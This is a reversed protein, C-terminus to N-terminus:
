ITLDEFTQSILLHLTTETEALHEQQLQLMRDYLDYFSNQVAQLNEETPSSTYANLLSSLERSEEAMRPTWAGYTNTGFTIIRDIRGYLNRQGTLETYQTDLFEPLLMQQLLADAGAIGKEAAASYGEVRTAYATQFAESLSSQLASETESSPNALYNIQAESISANFERERVRAEPNVPLFVAGASIYSCIIEALVDEQAASVTESYQPLFRDSTFYELSSAIREEKLEETEAIHTEQEMLFADYYANLANLVAERNAASPALHYIDVADAVAQCETEKSNAASLSLFPPLGGSAVTQMWANIRNERNESHYSLNEKKNQIVLDYAAILADKVKQMTEENPTKKYAAIAAKTAESLPPHESEWVTGDSKELEQTDEAFVINASSSELLFCVALLLSLITFIKKKM